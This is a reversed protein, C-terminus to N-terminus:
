LIICMSSTWATECGHGNLQDENLEDFLGSQIMEKQWQISVAGTSFEQFFKEDKADLEIDKDDTKDRFKNTDKAYVVHSKPVWPPDLRGAELRHFNISKFFVHKRPDDGRSTFLLM